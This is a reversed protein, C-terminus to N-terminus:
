QHDSSSAGTQTPRIPMAMSRSISCHSLDQLAKETRQKQFSDRCKANQSNVNRKMAERRLTYGLLTGNLAELETKLAGVGKKGAMLAIQSTLETKRTYLSKITM